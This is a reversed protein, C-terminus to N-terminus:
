TVPWVRLTFPPITMGYPAGVSRRWWAAAFAWCAAGAVLDIAYHGGIPITSVIVLAQWGLMPIWMWKVDRWAAATMLALATHFSPFTAVGQLQSPDIVFQKAERLAFLHSLHYTGSGAPLLQQVGVPIPLVYFPGAAPVLASCVTAVLLCLNFMTCLEWAREFKRMHALSLATIFVLPFSSNYAFALVEPLGRVGAIVRIIAELDIGMSLDARHLAPDVFPLGFTQGVLCILGSGLGGCFLIMVVGTGAALREDGDEREHRRRAAFLAGLILTTLAIPVPAFRLKLGTLGALLLFLAATGLGFCASINALRVPKPSSM